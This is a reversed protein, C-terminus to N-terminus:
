ESLERPNHGEEETMRTQRDPPSAGNLKEEDPVPAKVIFGSCPLTVDLLRSTQRADDSKAQPRTSDFITRM